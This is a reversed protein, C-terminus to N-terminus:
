ANTQIVTSLVQPPTDALNVGDLMVALNRKLTDKTKDRAVRGFPRSVVKIGFNTTFGEHVLHAYFPEKYNISMRVENGRTINITPQVRDIGAYLHGELIGLPHGVGYKWKKWRRYKPRNAPMDKGTKVIHRVAPKYSRLYYRGLVKKAGELIVKRMRPEATNQLINDIFESKWDIVLRGM